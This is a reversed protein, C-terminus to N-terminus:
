VPMLNNFEPNRNKQYLSIETSKKWFRGRRKVINEAM